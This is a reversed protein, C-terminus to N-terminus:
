SPPLPLLASHALWIDSATTAGTQEVVEPAMWYPSGVVAADLVGGVRAAVGFDALKVTGDKNTLLNAGKIDRHIVGQDHLYLLGELVQSIYMAVLNEPFKGFKKLVTHLSGNECLELIIYLFERTKVFGKYQVINEHHLNKLLDIESMIEPLENAPINSLQIEKIAVTEGTEFNLGIDGMDVMPFEVPPARATPMLTDTQTQNFGPAVIKVNSGVQFQTNQTFMSPLEAKVRTDNLKKVSKKLNITIRSMMAVTLLLELQATINKLGEPAFIIMLTLVLTVAFIATYYVLGDQFLRKMIYSSNRNKLSPLTRFLTLGLVATDYLLPLWASASAIGSISPDFIMTCTLGKKGMWIYEVEDAFTDIHDWVLMTFSAIGMYNTNFQQSIDEIVGPYQPESM